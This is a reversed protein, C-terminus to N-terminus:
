FPNRTTHSVTIIRYLKLEQGAERPAESKHGRFCHKDPFSSLTEPRVFWLSGGPPLERRLRTLSLANRYLWYLDLTARAGETVSRTGGRHKAQLVRRRKRSNKMPPLSHKQRCYVWFTYCVIGHLAHSFSYSRITRVGKTTPRPNIERRKIQMYRKNEAAALWRGVQKISPAGKAIWYFLQLISEFVM